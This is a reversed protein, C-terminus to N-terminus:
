IFLHVIEDCSRKFQQDTVRVLKFGNEEFWKDQARDRKWSKYITRDRPNKFERILEIPRDLGHWYVGDFQIYTVIDVVYFDIYWDNLQVQRLVINFTKCLLKYFENEIKSQRYTGNKKKSKHTKKWIEKKKWPHDVGYSNLCTQRTKEKVIKSKSPHSVGYRRFSTNQIKKQIQDSKLPHDVGYKEIWTQKKKEKIKESQAPCEVGYKKICTLKSKEKVKELQFSNNVGYRNRMTILRQKKTKQYIDGGHKSSQVLCKRSCFVLKSHLKTYKRTFEKECFDCKCNLIRKKRTGRSKVVTISQVPM